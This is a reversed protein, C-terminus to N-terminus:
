VGAIYVPVGTLAQIERRFREEDSNQASLHLLWVERCHSLDNAALMGKVTDLNMHTRRIRHGLSAPVSGNIINKSLIDSAFNCEVAIVDLRKFRAKSYETDTMYLICDHGMAMGYNQHASEAWGAVNAIQEDTAMIGADDFAESICEKWYDM